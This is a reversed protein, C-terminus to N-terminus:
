QYTDVGAARSGEEVPRDAEVVRRSGAGVPHRDAGVLHRGVEVVAPISDGSALRWQGVAKGDEVQRAVM